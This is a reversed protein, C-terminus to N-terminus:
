QFSKALKGPTKIEKAFLLINSVNKPCHQFPTIALILADDM